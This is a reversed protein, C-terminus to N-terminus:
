GRKEDNLWPPTDGFKWPRKTLNKWCEIHRSSGATFDRTIETICDEGPAIERKCVTCTLM